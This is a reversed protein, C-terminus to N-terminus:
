LDLAYFSDCSNHGTNGMPKPIRQFGMKQYLGAAENMRNLTELYCIKYGLRRAEDLLIQLIKVGLGKGRLEPLFYMKKLECVTTDGGALPGIGGGGLVKDGEAVVWYVSTPEQYNDAIADVEPDNISFGPGVAGYETMVQRIIAAMQANDSAQISRFVFQDAEQRM